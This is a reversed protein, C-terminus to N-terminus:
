KAEIRNIDAYFILFWEDGRKLFRRMTGFETKKKVITEVVAGEIPMNFTRVFEQTDFQEARHMRWSAATWRFTALDVSDAQNGSPMGELPFSIHAMQYASDSHFKEYFSTFDAPLTTKEENNLNNATTKQKCNSFILVCFLGISFTGFNFLSNNSAICSFTTGSKQSIFTM